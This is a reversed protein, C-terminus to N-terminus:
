LDLTDCIVYIKKGFNKKEYPKKRSLENFSILKLEPPNKRSIVYCNTFKDFNVYEFHYCAFYVKEEIILIEDIEYLFHDALILLSKRYDFSNCKFFKTKSIKQGLNLSLISECYSKECETLKGYSIVDTYTNFTTAVVEQNKNALSKTINIFNNSKQVYQKLVKHKSENKAMNMCNIPGMRKIITVYHSLFHHKPTLNKDFFEIISELHLKTENKLKVLDSEKIQDSNVIQCIRLLSEVLVWVKKVLKDNRYDYLLFPLHLFLCKLQSANQGLNSKSRNLISPTNKQNLKGYDFFQAMNILESETFLDNSIFFTFLEKLLFLISGDELDHMRDASFNEFINFYSLDNLVCYCKIGITEKYDVKTSNKVIEIQRAYNEKTRLKEKIECFSCECFRCYYHCNFGGALGMSVNGGLNDFSLFSITGKINTGNELTIGVTELHRIDSVIPAWINNFDTQRTKMDNANCLAVLYVNDLKSRFNAPINNISFYVACVKHVGAKSQLPNLFEVDDTSLQIQLSKPDKKYLENEKFVSGCCFRHYEGEKCTHSSEHNYEFYADRFDQRRFLTEITQIISVYQFTSQKRKPIAVLTNKCRKMELRTGIAIDRPAVYFESNAVNAKFKFTSDFSGIQTCVLDSSIDVIENADIKNDENILQINIDSIDKMLEGCLKFIANSQKQTLSLGNVNAIWSKVKDNIKEFLKFTNSKEPEHVFMEDFRSQVSDM